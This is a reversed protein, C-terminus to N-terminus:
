SLEPRAPASPAVACTAESHHDAAACRFFMLVKRSASSEGHAVARLVGFGDMQQDATCEGHGPPVRGEWAYGKTNTWPFLLSSYVPLYGNGTGHSQRHERTRTGACQVGDWCGCARWPPRSFSCKEGPAPDGTREGITRASRPPTCTRGRSLRLRRRRAFLNKKARPCPAPRRGPGSTTAKLEVRRRCRLRRHWGDPGM